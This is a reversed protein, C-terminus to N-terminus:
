QIILVCLNSAIVDLLTSRSCFKLSVPRPASHPQRSCNHTVDSLVGVVGADAILTQHLSSRNQYLLCASGAIKKEAMAKSIVSEGSNPCFM